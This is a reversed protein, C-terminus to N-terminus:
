AATREGAGGFHRLVTSGVSRITTTKLYQAMINQTSQLDLYMRTEWSDMRAGTSIEALGLPCPDWMLVKAPDDFTGVMYFGIDM